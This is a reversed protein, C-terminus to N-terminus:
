CQRNNGYIIPLTHFHDDFCGRAPIPFPDLESLRGYADSQFHINISCAISVDKRKRLALTRSSLIRKAQGTVFTHVTVLSWHLISSCASHSYDIHVSQLFMQQAWHQALSSNPHKNCTCYVPGSCAFKTQCPSPPAPFNTSHSQMKAFEACWAFVHTIDPLSM